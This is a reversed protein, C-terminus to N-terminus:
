SFTSSCISAIFQILIFFTFLSVFIHVSAWCEFLLTSFESGRIINKYNWFVSYFEMKSESEIRKISNKTIQQQQQQKEKTETFEWSWTEQEAESDVQSNAM